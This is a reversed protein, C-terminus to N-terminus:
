RIAPVVTALLAQDWRPQALFAAIVYAFLVATLWKLYRAFAVYSTYVTVALISLGFVLVSVLSPIGTLMATVDAMGALDASINFVNAVLLLLCAAYLFGRPYHGRLAGALGRGSVLGVRACILQVAAMLPFTALATWLMGYGLSAGAISYTTIGAPDDDAAGTVLGPGLIRFYRVLPNHSHRDTEQLDRMLAAENHGAGRAAPEAVM